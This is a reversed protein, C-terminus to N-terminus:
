SRAGSRAAGTLLGEDLVALLEEVGAVTHDGMHGIRFTTPALDGYGSGLTYGREAAARVVAPANECRICSVTPARLGPPALLEVNVRGGRAAEVWMWVAQAMRAHREYRAPLGERAMADLQADLAFILSIAPTTATERKHWFEDYRVLDLYVGRDELARAREMLRESCAAFALGPPLAMAKQSASLVLDVGWADMDVAVGGVSSVADVLLLTDPLRRTIRAISEVDAIVGTSTEVYVMTVADFGGRAIREAVREAPVTEGPPVIVREVERGCAEAIRAFREGFAGSVLSLVRRRTGCRIAADMMGTAACTAVYVPRRTGFLPQLGAYVRGLIAHMGAGRHPIMARSLVALIEPRVQTPGPIFFTEGTM